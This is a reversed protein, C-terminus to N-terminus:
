SAEFVIWLLKVEENGLNVVKQVKRTSTCYVSDGEGLVVKESNWMLELEGRLVMGFKVGIPHVLEKSLEAGTGLTFVHPEMRINLFGSALTESSVKIEEVATKEGMGKRIVVLDKKEERDFFYATEMDLAGAIKELSTISPSVFDRELQSLFSTTLGTKKALEELTFRRYTRLNRIKSGIKM